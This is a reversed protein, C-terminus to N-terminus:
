VVSKRDLLTVTLISLRAINKLSKRNLIVSTLFCIFVSLWVAIVPAISSFMYSACLSTLLFLLIFKNKGSDILKLYFYVFLPLTASLIFYAYIFRHWVFTMMFPNFIYFLGALIQLKNSKEVATKFVLSAGLGQLYIIIFFLIKQIQLAGLGIRELIAMFFYLPISAITTPFSAGPGLAEWWLWVIQKLTKEPTYTPIGAETGGFLLGKTFWLQILLFAVFLFFIQPKLIFPVIKKLSSM